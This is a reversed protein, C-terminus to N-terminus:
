AILGVISREAEIKVPGLGSFELSTAQLITRLIPKSCIRMFFEPCSPIQVAKGLGSDVERRYDRLQLHSMSLLLLAIGWSM